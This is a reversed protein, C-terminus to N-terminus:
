KISEIGALLLGGDSTVNSGTMFANDESVIFAVLRAMDEPEGIRGLPSWGRLKERVLDKRDCYQLDTYRYLPIDVFSSIDVSFIDSLHSKGGFRSM